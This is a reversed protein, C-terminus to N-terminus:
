VREELEKQQGFLGSPRVILILIILGFVLVNNWMTGGLASMVTTGMGLILAALITGVWSGLGGIVCVAIANTLVSYGSECNVNGLPTVAIASIGALASGIGLSINAMRDSNIGLMLAAREHQAMARLALGIRHYHTFLWVLGLLILGVAIILLRQLDVTVWRTELVGTVFPPLVYGPGIFGKFGGIGQLRLGELIALAIAFSVIIESIPMGRVRIMVFQYIAMGILSVILLSLFVSLGYPLGASNIFSWTIFGTVVYLAGHAFNPLRSIGYVFSFGVAMLVFIMGNIVGYVFIEV